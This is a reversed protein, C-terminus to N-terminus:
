PVMLSTSVSSSQVITTLILGFSFSKAPSKFIKENLVGKFESEALPSMIKVFYKLSLFLMAFSLGLTLIGNNFLLVQVSHAVPNLVLSLPSSFQMGIGSGLFFQTLFVASNELTHFIMELPFMVLIVIFNFFDHVTAAEFAKRFENKRTIHGLSVITNTISTGINAGMIIPIAGGISLAGTATLGVLISTTVSSSQVLSTALIGIFLGVFPNTTFSVLEQAFGTGFLKFSTSMLKISLMFVYLIAMLLVARMAIERKEM